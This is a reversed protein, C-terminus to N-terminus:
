KIREKNDNYYINIIYNNININFHYYLYYARFLGRFPAEQKGYWVTVSRLFDSAPSPYVMPNWSNTQM